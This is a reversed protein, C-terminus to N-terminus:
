DTQGQPVQLLQRFLSTCGARAVSVMIAQRRYQSLVGIDSYFIVMMKGALWRVVGHLCPVTCCFSLVASSNNMSSEVQERTCSLWYVLVHGLARLLALHRRRCLLSLVSTSFYVKGMSVPRIPRNVCVHSLIHLYILMHPLINNMGWIPVAHGFVCTRTRQCYFEISSSTGYNDM